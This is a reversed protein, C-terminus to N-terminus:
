RDLRREYMKLGALGLILTVGIAIGAYVGFQNIANAAAHGAFYAVLGVTTAWTLGGLANWFFFRGFRMDTIGAMWAVVVRLLAVWRGFFVAKDGHRAFFHDGIRLLRLRRKHMPGPRELVERGLWRGLLYAINDGLIASAVAIVIVLWIM